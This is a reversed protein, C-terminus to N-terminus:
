FTEHQNNTKEDFSTTTRFLARSSFRTAAKQNSINFGKIALTQLWQPGLSKQRKAVAARTAITKERWLFQDCGMATWLKQFFLRKGAKVLHYWLGDNILRKEFEFDDRWRAKTSCTLCEGTDIWAEKMMRKRESIRKNNKRKMAGCGLPLRRLHRRPCWYRKRERADYEARGPLMIEADCTNPRPLLQLLDSRTAFLWCAPVAPLMPCTARDLGDAAPTFLM